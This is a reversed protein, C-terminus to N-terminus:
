KGLTPHVFPYTNIHIDGHASQLFLQAQSTVHNTTSGSLGRTGREPHYTILCCCKKCATYGTGENDFVVRDFKALVNSKGKLPETLSPERLSIGAVLHHLEERSAKM